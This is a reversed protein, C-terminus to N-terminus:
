RVFYFDEEGGEEEGDGGGGELTPIRVETYADNVGLVMRGDVKLDVYLGLRKSIGFEDSM